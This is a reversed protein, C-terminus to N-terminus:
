AAFAYFHGRDDWDPKRQQLLRLYLEHVLATPQLTHGASERRLYATAVEHLHPYVHPMLQDRAEPDGATWKRLLVTIDGADSEMAGLTGGHPAHGRGLEAYCVQAFCFGSSETSFGVPPVPRGVRLRIWPEASAPGPPGARVHADAGGRPNKMVKPLRAAGHASGRPRTWDGAFNRPVIELSSGYVEWLDDYSCSVTMPFAACGASKCPVSSRSTKCARWRPPM